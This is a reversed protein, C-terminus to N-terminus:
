LVAILCVQVPNKHKNRYDQWKTWCAMELIRWLSLAGEQSNLRTAIDQFNISSLVEKSLPDPPPTMLERIHDMEEDVKDGIMELLVGELINHGKRKHFESPEVM